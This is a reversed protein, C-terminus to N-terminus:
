GHPVKVQGGTTLLSAMEPVSEAVRPYKSLAM